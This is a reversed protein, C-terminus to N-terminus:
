FFTGTSSVVSPLAGSSPVMRNACFGISNDSGFAPITQNSAISPTITSLGTASSFNGNWTTFTTAANINVDVSWSSAQVPANNIVRLTACYGSGFDSTIQLSAQLLGSTSTAIGSSPACGGGVCLFSSCDNGTSCLKGDGCRANCSGGCDVDSETGNGVGDTCSNTPATECSAFTNTGSSDTCVDANGANGALNDNGNGGNLTDNGDDGFLTDNDDDGFLQDQGQGGRLTDNGASGHVIDDGDGGFLRDDGIDGTLQDQGTGGFVMDNGSGSNIIDNGEGGSIFDNGGLGNITDQAGRALICDSGTTGTLNDNNSTGLIVNSGAPCCAPDDSLILTVLQTATTTNGAADRATWTVITTGPAFKAPANNTITVAASNCFDAARASGINVAGCNATTIDPPVFTFNPATTDSGPASSCWGMKWLGRGYTAILVEARVEDFSFSTIAPIARSGPVQMWSTGGDFTAMIGAAETGVLARLSNTPDFAATHAQGGFLFEGNNRVLATLQADVQWSAGANASVKM